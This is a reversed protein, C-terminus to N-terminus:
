ETKLKFFFIEFQNIKLKKQLYYNYTSSQKYLLKSVTTQSLDSPEQENSSSPTKARNNKPSESLCVSSKSKYFGECLISENEHFDEM